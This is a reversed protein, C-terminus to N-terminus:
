PGTAAGSDRGIMRLDELWAFSELRVLEDRLHEVNRGTHTLVPRYTFFLVSVVISIAALSEDLRSRMWKALTFAHQGYLDSNNNQM